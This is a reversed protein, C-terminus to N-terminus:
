WPKVKDSLPASAPARDDIWQDIDQELWGVARPGLAIPKPFCGDALQRYISSRSLGTRTVVQPLRLINQNM